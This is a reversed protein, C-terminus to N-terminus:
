ETESPALLKVWHKKEWQMATRYHRYEKERRKFEKSHSNWQGNRRVPPVVQHCMEHYVTLELVCLPVFEQKLRPHIRILKKKSDYSGFRFSRRNTIKTDKGWEISAEVQGGFYEENLRNLIANLDRPDEVPTEEEEPPLLPQLMSEELRNHIVNRFRDDLHERGLLANLVLRELTGTVQEPECDFLSFYNRNFMELRVGEGGLGVNVQGLFEFGSKKVRFLARYADAGSFRGEGLVLVGPKVPQAKVTRIHTATATM